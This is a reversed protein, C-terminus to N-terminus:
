LTSQIITAKSPREKLSLLLKPVNVAGDDIQTRAGLEMWWM